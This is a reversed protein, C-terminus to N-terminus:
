DSMIEGCACLALIQTNSCLVGVALRQCNGFQEVYYGNSVSSHSLNLNDCLKKGHRALGLSKNRCEMNGAVAVAPKAPIVCASLTAVRSVLGALAISPVIPVRINQLPWLELM